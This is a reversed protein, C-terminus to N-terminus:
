LKRYWIFCPGAIPDQSAHCYSKFNLIFSNKWCNWFIKSKKTCQLFKKVTAGWIKFEEKESVNLYFSVNASSRPLNTEPLTKPSEPITRTEIRQLHYTRHRSFRRSSESRSWWRSRPGRWDSGLLKNESFFTFWCILKTTKCNNVVNGSFLPFCNQHNNQFAVPPINSL